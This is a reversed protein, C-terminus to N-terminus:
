TASRRNRLGAVRRATMQGAVVLPTNRAEEESWGRRLRQRVLYYQRRKKSRMYFTRECELCKRRVGNATPRTQVNDGSLEHGRVCHTRAAKDQRGKRVADQMNESCTAAFLHDPNCCPPQDCTHCAYISPPLTKGLKLELMKRHVRIGKGRYSSSPYGRQGPRMNRFQHCFGNWLWCGTETITCNARHKAIWLENYIEDPVRKRGSPAMETRFARLDSQCFVASM